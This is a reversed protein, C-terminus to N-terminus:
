KHELQSQLCNLMYNNPCCVIVVVSESPAVAPWKPQMRYKCPAPTASSVCCASARQSPLAACPRSSRRLHVCTAPPVQYSDSTDTAKSLPHRSRARHNILWPQGHVHVTASSPGLTAFRTDRALSDQVTRTDNCILLNVIRQENHNPM